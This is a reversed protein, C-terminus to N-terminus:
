ARVAKYVGGAGGKKKMQKGTVGSGGGAKKGTGKRGGESGLSARSESNLRNSNEQASGTSRTGRSSGAATWSPARRGGRADGAAWGESDSSEGAGGDSDARLSSAVIDTREHSRPGDVMARGPIALAAYKQAPVVAGEEEDEEEDDFAEDGLLAPDTRLKLEAADKAGRRPQQRAV